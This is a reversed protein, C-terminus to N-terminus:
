SEARCSVAVWVANLEGISPGSGPEATFASEPLTLPDVPFSPDEVKFGCGAPSGSFQVANKATPEIYVYFTPDFMAFRVAAKRADVPAALELRFELTLRGAEDVSNRAKSALSFPVAKADARLLTFYGFEKMAELNVSALAALEAEDYKGNRNEDLGELAFASYFEDFTWIPHLAVIRGAADFELRAKADIWIHPHAAAGSPASAVALALAMGLATKRM